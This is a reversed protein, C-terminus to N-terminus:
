GVHSRVTDLVSKDDPFVGTKLKSYIETGDVYVEFCGGGSPLLELSSLDNKLTELMSFPFCKKIPKKIKLIYFLSYLIYHIQSM